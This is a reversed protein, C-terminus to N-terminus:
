SNKAQKGNKGVLGLCERKSINRSLSICKSNQIHEFLITEKHNEKAFNVFNHYVLYDDPYKTAIGEFKHKM